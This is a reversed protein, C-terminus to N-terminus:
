IAPKENLNLYLANQEENFVVPFRGQKNIGFQNFIGKAFLKTKRLILGNEDPKIRLINTESDYAIEIREANNIKARAPKNLVISNKSLSVYIQKEVRESTRPKYIEFAM